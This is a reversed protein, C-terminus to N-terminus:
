DQAYHTGATDCTFNVWIGSSSTTNWTITEGWQLWYKGPWKENMRNVLELAKEYTLGLGDLSIPIGRKM